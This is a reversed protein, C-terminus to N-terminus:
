IFYLTRQKAGSSHHYIRFPDGREKKGQDNRGIRINDFITPSPGIDEPDNSQVNQKFFFSFGKSGPFPVDNIHKMTVNVDENSVFDNEDEMDDIKAFNSGTEFYTKIENSRNTEQSYYTEPVYIIETANEYNEFIEKETKPTGRRKENNSHSTSDKIIGGNDETDIEKDSAYVVDSIEDSSLHHIGLSTDLNVDKEYDRHYSHFYAGVNANGSTRYGHDPVDVSQRPIYVGGDYSELVQPASATYVTYALTCSRVANASMLMLTLTLFGALRM